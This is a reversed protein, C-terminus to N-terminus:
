HRQARIEVDSRSERDECQSDVTSTVLFSAWSRMNSINLYPYSVSSIMCYSKYVIYTGFLLYQYPFNAYLIKGLSLQLIEKHAFDIKLYLILPKDM